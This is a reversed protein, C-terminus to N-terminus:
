RPTCYGQWCHCEDTRSNYLAPVTLPILLWIFGIAGSISALSVVLGRRSYVVPLGMSNCVIHAVLPSVLHGTRIFLFSAYSGFVLTYALQIGVVMSIKVVVCKKQSDFEFLRNLHALSFFVPALFVTTLPTFGSCLLLPIMCARFVLEETIPAVVLNRWASINSPLSLLFACLQSVAASWSPLELLEFSKVLLSGCYMLCTLSLSSVMARLFNDPRVGYAALVFTSTLPGPLLLSSLFLCILSSVSACIFRRILMHNFSIPPPRRFIITPSHLTLVYVVAMLICAGVAWWRGLAEM